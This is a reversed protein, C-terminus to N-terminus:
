GASLHVCFLSECPRNRQRMKLWIGQFMEVILPLPVHEAIDRNRQVNEYMQVLDEVGRQSLQGLDVASPIHTNIHLKCCFPSESDDILFDWYSWEMALVLDDFDIDPYMLAAMFDCRTLKIIAIWKADLGEYSITAM